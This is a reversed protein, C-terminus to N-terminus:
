LGNRKILRAGEVPGYYKILLKKWCATNYGGRSTWCQRSLQDNVYTACRYASSNKNAFVQLGEEGFRRKRCPGTGVWPGYKSRKPSSSKRNCDAGNEIPAGLLGKFCDDARYRPAPNNYRNNNTQRRQIKKVPANGLNAGSSDRRFYLERQQQKERAQQKQRRANEEAARRQAAWKRTYESSYGEAQVNLTFSITSLMVLLFFTRNIKITGM